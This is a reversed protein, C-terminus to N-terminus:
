LLKIENQSHRFLIEEPWISSQVEGIHMKKLLFMCLRSQGIGGGISLPLQNNLLLSHFLLKSREQCGKIELQKLMSETNVRIGMSSIEFASNLVPNWLIIDGNLGNYGDENLSSWDDYDPARGDHPLGNSLRNGIGIIFVAGFIRAVEKEREKVTLDPFQKLLEESHIFYIKEPLEPSMGPFIECVEREITKIAEYISEVTTKLYAITRQEPLIHKEWDWQDVYISHIPSLDEDPRLARMDTLIGKGAEINFEKLRIRKWKALSQVVSARKGELGKVPFSVPREIGNLDDNIGTGDLVAIPASVRILNLNKALRKSFKEKIYFIAEESKLKDSVASVQIQILEHSM